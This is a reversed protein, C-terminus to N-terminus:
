TLTPINSWDDGIRLGAAEVEIGKGAQAEVSWTFTENGNDTESLGDGAVLNSGASGVSDAGAIRVIEDTSTRLFIVPDDNSYNVALEGYELQGATPAKAAGLELVNSRKHKIKM